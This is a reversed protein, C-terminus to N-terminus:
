LLVGKGTEGLPFHDGGGQPFAQGAEAPAPIPTRFNNYYITM